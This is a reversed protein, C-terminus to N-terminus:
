AHKWSFSRDAGVRDSAVLQHARGIVQYKDRYLKVASAHALISNHAAVYPEVTSNGAPCDDDRGFPKSCRGPALTGSDYGGVAAIAPEDM